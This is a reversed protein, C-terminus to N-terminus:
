TLLKGGTSQEKIVDQTIQESAYAKSLIGQMIPCDMCGNKNIYQCTETGQYNCTYKKTGDSQQKLKTLKVMLWEEDKLNIKKM